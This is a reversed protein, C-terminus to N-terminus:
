ENVTNELIRKLRELRKPELRSFWEDRSLDDYALAAYAKRKEGGIESLEEYVLGRSSRFMEPPLDLDGKKEVSQYEELVSHLIALAEGPRNLLRLARAIAWKAVRINPAYQEQERYELARKLAPLAKEYNEAELYAQGLNNYLSGLWEQARVSESSEALEIARENWEIKEEATEAAFPVMHAANVTHYDFGHEASLEFSQKFLPKAAAVDGEQFFVRGRELLIRVRALHHESSLQREAMDLTKYAEDFNKQVAQALAIQSLIQLYISKDELAEAQPLLARLNKEAEAVDGVFLKDFEELRFDEDSQQQNDMCSRLEEGASDTVIMVVFAYSLLIQIGYKVQFRHM